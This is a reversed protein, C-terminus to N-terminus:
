ASRRRRSILGVASLGLLALTAPEPVVTFSASAAGIPDSTAGLLVNSLGLDKDPDLLISYTQGEQLNSFTATGFLISNGPFPTTLNNGGLVLEFNPDYLDFDTPTNLTTFAAQAASSYSWAVPSTGDTGLILDIGQIATLTTGVTVDYAVSDTPLVQLGPTVPDRDVASPSFSVSGALANAASFALVAVLSAVKRM